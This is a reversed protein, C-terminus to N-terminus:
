KSKREYEVKAPAYPKGGGDYFRSFTEYYLLRLVQIGVLLGELCIVFANGFILMVPGVGGLLESLSIVVTMMGAHSIIFGAVRLFSVTNSLFSLMTEFFEFFSEVLYGGFGEEPKAPKHKCLQGLPKQLLMLVIPLVIVLLIFVPNLVNIGSMLLLVAAAIIGGYLILGAVGKGSFIAREYDKKKLGLYINLIISTLIIVVGIGIACVLLLNTTEPHLVEIPKGDFGLARYVPDLVHEMGFVSGYLCGFIMSSVGCRALIPGLQMKKLRWMLIGVISIVFGQGLDGFMIGFLLMYIIGVLPTPNFEGYNPLGYMEVFMEFPKFLWNNHLKVPPTLRADADVPQVECVVSDIKDFLSLFKKLQREPVFGELHFQDYGTVAYRRYAFTDNKMKLLSYVSLMKDKESEILQETETEVATLAAEEKTIQASINQVAIDPTGHAYSPIKIEEFYLADFIQDMEDGLAEPCFYVGWTYDGDHDFPFFFFDKEKYYELKLTSDAPLRGFRARSHKADFIDDFKTELGRMHGVQTVAQKHMRISDRLESRRHNCSTIHEELQQIYAWVQEDSMNLSFYDRYGYAIGLDDLVGMAKQLKTTYPNEEELKKFATNTPALEPHFLESKCCNLLTEDLSSLSGVINVLSMKEISM